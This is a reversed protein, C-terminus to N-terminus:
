RYTRDTPQHYDVPFYLAHDHLICATVIAPILFLIARSLFVM